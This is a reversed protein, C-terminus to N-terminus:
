ELKYGLSRGMFAMIRLVWFPPKVPVDPRHRVGSMSMYILSRLDKVGTIKGARALRDLTKL